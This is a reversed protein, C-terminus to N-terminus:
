FIIICTVFDCFKFWFWVTSNILYVKVVFSMVNEVVAIILISRYDGM